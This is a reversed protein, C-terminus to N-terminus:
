LISIPRASAYLYLCSHPIVTRFGGSAVSGVPDLVCMAQSLPNKPSVPPKGVRRLSEGKLTLVQVRFASRLGHRLVTAVTCTNSSLAVLASIRQEFGDWLRRARASESRAVFCPSGMFKRVVDFAARAAATRTVRAAAAPHAEVEM